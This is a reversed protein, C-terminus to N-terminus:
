RTRRMASCASAGPLGRSSPRETTCIVSSSRHTNAPTPSPCVALPSPARPAAPLPLPNGRVPHRVQDIPTNDLLQHVEDSWDSFQTEKLWKCMEAPELELSKPPINLFAYWQIRGGCVDVSVFYKRSGLFVKYGVEKIDDPVVNAIAAFCTYGSWVPDTPSVLQSRVKSWIGDSGILLDAEYRTGNALIGVVGSGDALQEYGVVEEGVTVSSGVRELLIDQLKPRDIVISADANRSKAPSLLDFTAFWENSVGDKLGNKRDGIKTASAMIDAYVQRDIRVISELANTAIQIPGGFPKYEKAKEFIAVDCGRNKLVLAACLGGIGGGAVMVRLPRRSPVGSELNRTDLLTHEFQQQQQPRQIPSLVAVPSQTRLRWAPRLGALFGQCPTIALFLLAASHM